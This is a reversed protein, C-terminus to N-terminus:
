SDQGDKSSFSSIFKEIWKLLEESENIDPVGKAYKIKDMDTLIKIIETKESISPLEQKIEYTTMEAAKIDFQKEIFIRFIMSLEYYYELYKGQALYEKQKFERLLELAIMWAPRTDVYDETAKAKKKYLKLLFYIATALILLILIPFAYDLFGLGFAVPPAIDRLLTDAPTLSTQVFFTFPEIFLTDSLNSGSLFIPFRDTEVYGTDFPAIRLLYIWPRNNIEDFSVVQYRTHTRENLFFARDPQLESFDFELDIPQGILLPEQIDSVVISRSLVYSVGIMLILFLLNRKTM